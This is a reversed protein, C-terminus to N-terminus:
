PRAGSSGCGSLCAMGDLSLAVAALKRLRNRVPKIGAMPLLLFALAMSGLPGGLFPKASHATQHNVTQITM